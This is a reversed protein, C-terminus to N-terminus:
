LFIASLLLLSCYNPLASHVDWHPHARQHYLLETAIYMGKGVRRLPANRHDEVLLQIDKSIDRSQITREDCLICTANYIDSWLIQNSAEAGLHNSKSLMRKSECKLNRWLAIDDTRMVHGALMCNHRSWHQTYALYIAAAYFRRTQYATNGHDLPRVHKRYLTRRECGHLLIWLVAVRYVNITNDHHRKEELHVENTTWLRHQHEQKAPEACLRSNYPHTTVYLAIIPM